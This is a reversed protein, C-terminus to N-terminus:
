LWKAVGGHHSCTGSRHMSFSYTGDRCQATAGAPPGSCNEPRPVRQGQSNVYTGNNTCKPQSEKAHHTATASNGLQQSQGVGPQWLLSLALGLAFFYHHVRRVTRVEWNTPMFLLSPQRQPFHSRRAMQYCPLAKVSAIALRVLIPTTLFVKGVCSLRELSAVHAVNARPGRHGM